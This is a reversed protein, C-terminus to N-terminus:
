FIGLINELICKLVGINTVIKIIELKDFLLPVRDKSEGISRLSICLSGGSAPTTPMFRKPMRLANCDGGRGWTACKEKLLARLLLPM